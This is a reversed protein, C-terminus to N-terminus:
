DHPQHDSRFKSVHEHRHDVRQRQCIEFRASCEDALQINRRQVHEHGHRRFFWGCDTWTGNILNIIAPATNSFVGSLQNTAGANFQLTGTQVEVLGGPNQFNFVDISSTGTGGSKRLTGTNIWNPTGSGGGGYAFTGNSTIQWLGSNYIQTTPPGGSSLGGSSWTVTGQNTIILGYLYSNVPAACNLKGSPLITLAGNIWSNSWTMTGGNTIVCNACSLTAFNDVVVTPSGPSGIRLVAPSVSNTIVVSYTGINTVLATDGASPVTNPLWNAAVHWSGGASNTWSFTAARVSVALLLASFIISFFIM